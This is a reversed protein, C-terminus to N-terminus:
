EYSSRGIQLFTHNQARLFTHASSHVSSVNRTQQKCLRRWGVIHPQQKSCDVVWSFYLFVLSHTKVPSHACASNMQSSNGKHKKVSHKETRKSVRKSHAEARELTHLAPQWPERKKETSACALFLFVRLPSFWDELCCFSGPQDQWYCISTEFILGHM